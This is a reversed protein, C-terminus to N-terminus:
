NAIYWKGLCGFGDDDLVFGIYCDCRYPPEAGLTINCKQECLSNSCAGASAIFLWLATISETAYCPLQPGLNLFKYPAGGRRIM